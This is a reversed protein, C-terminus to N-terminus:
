GFATAKAEKEYFFVVRLMVGERGNTVPFQVSEHLDKCFGAFILRNHLKEYKALIQFRKREVAELREAVTKLLECEDSLKRLLNRFDKLYFFLNNENGIRHCEKIFFYGDTHIQFYLDVFSM